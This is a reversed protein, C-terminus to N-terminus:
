KFYSYKIYRLYTKLYILSNLLVQGGGFKKWTTQIFESLNPLMGKESFGGLLYYVVPLPFYKITQQPISYVIDIVWNYEAKYRYSLDYLPAINRKVFVAQHCLGLSWKLSSRSLAV